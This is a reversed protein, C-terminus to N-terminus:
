FFISRGQFAHPSNVMVAREADYLINLLLCDIYFYCSCLIFSIVCIPILARTSMIFFDYDSEKIIFKDFLLSKILRIYVFANIVSM